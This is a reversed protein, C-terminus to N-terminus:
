IKSRAAQAIESRGARSAGPDAPRWVHRETAPGRNREFNGRGGGRATSGGGAKGGRIGVAVPGAAHGTAAFPIRRSDAAVAGHAVALRAADGCVVANGGHASFARAM